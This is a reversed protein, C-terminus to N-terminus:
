AGTAALVQQHIEEAVLNARRNDTSVTVAAIERYLAARLQM